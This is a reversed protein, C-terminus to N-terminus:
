YSVTVTITDSYSGSPVNQGSPVSGYVPINVVAGTGVGALTDTGVTQGWNLTRSSDRYLSYSLQNSGNAMKRASVTAGSTTGPNMGVNYATLITCAVHVQSSVNLTSSVITNYSGFALDDATVTCFDLVSATVQFTATATGAFANAAACLALGSLLRPLPRKM